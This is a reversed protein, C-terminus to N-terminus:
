GRVEGASSTGLRSISQLMSPGRVESGVGMSERNRDRYGRSASMSVDSARGIM